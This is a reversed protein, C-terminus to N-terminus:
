PKMAWRLLARSRESLSPPVFICDAWQLRGTRGSFGTNYLGHLRYGRAALHGSVEGFLPQGEYFPVFFAETYILRIRQASLLGEAGRLVDLEGGQVDMKLVDVEDIRNERCYGDVTLAPVHEVRAASMMSIYSNPVADLDAALLSSTDGDQNVHLERTGPEAALAVQNVRAGPVGKLRSRAVSCFAEIPEFGHIGAEPFLGHYRLGVDGVNMGVDLIVKVPSGDLLAKQDPWCHSEARNLDYGARRVAFRVRQLFRVRAERLLTWMIM